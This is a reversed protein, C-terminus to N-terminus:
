HTMCGLVSVMERLRNVGGSVKDHDTILEYLKNDTNPNMFDGYLLPGEGLVEKPDTQFDEAMRKNLLEEFWQRDESNVLRDEFM